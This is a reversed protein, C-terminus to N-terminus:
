VCLESLECTQKEKGDQTPDEVELLKRKRPGQGQSEAAGGPGAWPPRPPRAPRHGQPQLGRSVM